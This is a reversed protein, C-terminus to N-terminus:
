KPQPVIRTYPNLATWGGPLKKKADDDSV